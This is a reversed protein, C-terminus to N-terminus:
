FVIMKVKFYLFIKQKFIRQKKKQMKQLFYNQLVGTTLSYIYRCSLFAIKVLRTKFKKKMQLLRLKNNSNRLKFMKM